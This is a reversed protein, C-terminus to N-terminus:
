YWFRGESPLERWPSRRKKQKKKQEEVSVASAVIKWSLRLLGM